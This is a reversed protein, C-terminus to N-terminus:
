ALHSNKGLNSLKELPSQYDDAPYTAGRRGDEFAARICQPSMRPDSDASYDETPTRSPLNYSVSETDEDPIFLTRTTVSPPNSKLGTLIYRRHLKTAIRLDRSDPTRFATWPKRKDFLSPNICPKFDVPRQDPQFSPPYKSPEKTLWLKSVCTNSTLFHLSIKQDCRFELTFPSRQWAWENPPAHHHCLLWFKTAEGARVEVKEREGEGDPVRAKIWIWYRQGNDEANGSLKYDCRGNQGDSRARRNQYIYIEQNRQKDDTSSEEHADSGIALPRTLSSCQAAGHEQGLFIHWPLIDDPDDMEEDSEPRALLLRFM